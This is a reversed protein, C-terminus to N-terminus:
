ELAVILIIVALLLVFITGATGHSQPTSDEVIKKPRTKRLQRILHQIIVPKM